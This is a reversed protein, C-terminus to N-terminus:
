VVWDNNRITKYTRARKTLSFARRPRPQLVNHNPLSVYVWKGGEREVKSASRMVFRSLIHIIQPACQSKSSDLSLLQCNLEPRLSALPLDQCRSLTVYRVLLQSYTSRSRKACLLYVSIVPPGFVEDTIM